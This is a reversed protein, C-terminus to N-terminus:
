GRWRYGGCTDRLNERLEHIVHRERPTIIGDSAARHEFRHLREAKEQCVYHNREAYRDHGREFREPDAHAAVSGLAVLATTLVLLKSM